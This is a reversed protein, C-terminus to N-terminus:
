VDKRDLGKLGKSHNINDKDLIFDNGVSEPLKGNKWYQFTMFSSASNVLLGHIDGAPVFAISDNSLLKHNFSKIESSSKYQFGNSEFIFDGFVHMQYVDVNPHSHYEILKIDEPIIFLETQFYDQRDLVLGLMPGYQTIARPCISGFNRSM